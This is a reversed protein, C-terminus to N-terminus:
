VIILLYPNKPCVQLKFDTLAFAINYMHHKVSVNGMADHVAADMFRLGIKEANKSVFLPIIQEDSSDSEIRGTLDPMPVGHWMHKSGGVIALVADPAQQLSLTVESYRGSEM